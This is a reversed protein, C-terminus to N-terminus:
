CLRDARGQLLLSWDARALKLKTNRSDRTAAARRQFKEAALGTDGENIRRAQARSAARRQANSGAQGGREIIHAIM